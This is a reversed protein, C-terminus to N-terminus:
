IAVAILMMYNGEEEKRPEVAWDLGQGGGCFEPQIEQLSRLL